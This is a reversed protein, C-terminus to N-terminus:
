GAQAVWGGWNLSLAPLRPESPPELQEELNLWQSGWGLGTLVRCLPVELSRSGLTGDAQKAVEGWFPVDSDEWDVIRVLFCCNGHAQAGFHEPCLLTSPCLPPGPRPGPTVFVANSEPEVM